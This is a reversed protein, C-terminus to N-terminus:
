HCRRGHNNHRSSHFAHHRRHDAQLSHQRPPAPLSISSSCYHTGQPVCVCAYRHAWSPLSHTFGLHFHSLAARKVRGEKGAMGRRRRGALTETRRGEYVCMCVRVCRAAGRRAQWAGPCFGVPNFCSRPPTAQVDGATPTDQCPGAPSLLLHHCSTRPSLHHHLM